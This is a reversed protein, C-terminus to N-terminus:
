SVEGARQGAGAIFRIAGCLPVEAERVSERHWAAKVHHLRKNFLRPVGAWTPGSM